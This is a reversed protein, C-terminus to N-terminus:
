TSIATSFPRAAAPDHQAMRQRVRDSRDGVCDREAQGVQEAAHDDDLRDEVIGADGLQHHVADGARGAAPAPRRSATRRRRGTSTVSASM